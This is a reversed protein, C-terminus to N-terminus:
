YIKDCYLSLSAKPFIISVLMDICEDTKIYPEQRSILITHAISALSIFYWHGFELLLLLVIACFDTDHSQMKM